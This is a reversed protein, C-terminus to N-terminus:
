VQVQYSEGVLQVEYRELARDAPGKLVRGESDFESGHCPCILGAPTVNVTCGLHTCVLNLAYVRGGRSMVAIRAERYVLAGDRPLDGKPVALLTKTHRPRPALFKGLFMGGAVLAILTGIFSRRSQGLEAM